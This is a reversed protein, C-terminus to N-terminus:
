DLLVEIRRGDYTVLLHAQTVNELFVDYNNKFAILEWDGNLELLELRRFQNNIRVRWQGGIDLGAWHMSYPNGLTVSVSVPADIVMNALVFSNTNTTSVQLASDVCAVSSDRSRWNYGMCDLSSAFAEVALVANVILLLAM